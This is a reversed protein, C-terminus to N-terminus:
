LVSTSMTTRTFLLCNPISTLDVEPLQISGLCKFFALAKVLGYIGKIRLLYLHKVAERSLNTVRNFVEDDEPHRM